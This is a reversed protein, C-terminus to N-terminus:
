RQFITEGGRITQLVQIQDLNQPDAQLPNQDLLVFDARKGTQISGKSEQEGYQHAAFSTVAQLAELPRICEERGIPRGSQTTRNVACWVTHLMNPEIVPTDQHFTFPIGQQQASYVPSIRAARTYGFNRIHTDGWHYTHAVFFSPTIGLRKVLPVQDRDLFQAHIMVPRVSTLDVGARQLKEVARILQACAADGNCHALLQVSHAAAFRLADEVERDTMTGYGFYTEENQYPTRMWATRGQPSGDLFIKVGAIKFNHHYRRVSQPFARCVAEFDQLGAYAVLDVKLKNQEILQRYYPAIEKVLMGEQVTAIGYSAYKDQAQGYAELLASISPLPVMRLYQLFANEEMYGTLKGDICEIRGGDPVPTKPTIHLRELACSNFLGMHGSTHQVVLPHEPVAQDLLALPVHKHGPLLNHDYAKAIVWEGPSPQHQTIHSRLRDVICEPTKANELSVQLFGNAASSFHSHADIFAPLMTKGQLDICNAGPAKERVQRLSGVALIKGCHVLVSEAYLEKGMTVITGGSYIEM